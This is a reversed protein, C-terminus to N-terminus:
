VLGTEVEIGKGVRRKIYVMVIMLPVFLLAGVVDTKLEPMALLFGGVFIGIRLLLFLYGFSKSAARERKMGGFGLLYGEFSSAIFFVGITAMSVSYIVESASGQLILAPNLVFFIPVFYKVSGLRAAAWGTRMPRAGAIAAAPYVAVCVPPTIYSLVGWYLIFFHVAIENLGASVLAPALMIALFVYVTIASMGMGLFFSVIGGLVLLLVVNGGAYVLIESPFAHAVGTMGLSGIIMGVACLLPVLQTMVVAIGHLFKGIKEANFRTKKRVNGVILLFLSTYFPAQSEMRLIVFVLLIIIAFIYFWGEKLTERISPLESKPLGKLGNYAAYGDVQVLLGFYYLFSPVVATLAVTLYPVNLFSAMVFAVAGMVPPMLTGGNSACAEVAGAYYPPFGTKKMMPITMTGTTIVNSIASGSLSGFFASALTAVKAVGGRAHGLLAMSIKFFFEGGGTEVLTIGFVLYGLLINGVVVIPIGLASDPSMIHYAILRELSFGAGKFMGPVYEAVLPYLSILLAVLFVATGGARRTAELIVFWVVASLLIMHTPAMAGWGKLQMEYAKLGFFTCLGITILFFLVNLNFSYRGKLKVGNRGPYIFFATSIFIAMLFYSYSSQLEYKGLFGFYFVHDIVLLLGIASLIVTLFYAFGKTSQPTGDDLGSKSSREASINEHTEKDSMDFHVKDIEM